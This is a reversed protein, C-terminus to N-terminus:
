PHWERVKFEIAGLAESLARTGAVDVGPAGVCTATVAIEHEVLAVVFACANQFGAAGVDGIAANTAWTAPDAEAAAVDTYVSPLASLLSAPPPSIMAKTYAQSISQAGTGDM